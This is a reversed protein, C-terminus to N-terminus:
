MYNNSTNGFKQGDVFPSSNAPIFKSCFDSGAYICGSPTGILEM